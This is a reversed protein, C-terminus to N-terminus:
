AALLLWKAARRLKTDTHATVRWDNRQRSTNCVQPYLANQRGLDQWMEPLTRRHVRDPLRDDNRHPFAM